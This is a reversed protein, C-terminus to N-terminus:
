MYLCGRGHFVLFYLFSFLWWVHYMVMFIAMIYDHTYQSIENYLKNITTRVLWQCIQVYRPLSFWVMLIYTFWGICVSVGQSNFLIRSCCQKKQSCITINSLNNTLDKEENLICWLHSCYEIYNCHFILLHSETVENFYNYFLMILLQKNQRQFRYVQTFFLFFIDHLRASSCM